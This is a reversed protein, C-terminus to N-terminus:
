LLGKIKKQDFSLVVNINGFIWVVSLLLSCIKNFSLLKIM